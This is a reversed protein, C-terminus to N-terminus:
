YINASNNVEKRMECVLFSLGLLLARLDLALVWDDQDRSEWSSPSHLESTYRLGM